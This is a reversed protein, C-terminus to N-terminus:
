GRLLAITCLKIDIIQMQIVCIINYITINNLTNYVDLFHFMVNQTCLTNNEIGYLIKCSEAYNLIVTNCLIIIYRRCYYYYDYLSHGEILFLANEHRVGVFNLYYYHFIFFELGGCLPPPCAYVHICVHGPAVEATVTVAVGVAQDVHREKIKKKM